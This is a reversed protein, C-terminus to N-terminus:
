TRLVRAESSARDTETCPMSNGTVASAPLLRRYASPSLGTARKFAENFASKSGFGCELAIELLPRGVSQPRSLTAKVAAVRLGNVYEFFSLGLQLSLVQSLQHPTVGIAGALDGLTLDCELYPKDTRMHEDLREAIVRALEKSLASKAYKGSRPDTSEVESGLIERDERVPHATPVLTVSEALLESLDVRCDTGLELSSDKEHTRGCRSAGLWPQMGFVNQQRAGFIGLLAVDIALLGNTLINSASVPLTWTGIWVAVLLAFTAAAALLWNLRRHEMSSFLSELRSQRNRVRRVVAFLYALIQCAIPMLVAVEGWSRTEQLVEATWPDRLVDWVLGFGLLGAPLAHLVFRRWSPAEEDPLRTVSAAYFWVAPGLLLLAASDFPSLWRSMLGFGLHHFIDGSAVMASLLLALLLWTAPSPPSGRWTRGHRHANAEAVGRERRSELIRVVQITGLTLSQAVVVTALLAATADLLTLTSMLVPASWVNARRTAYRDFYIYSEPPQDLPLAPFAM